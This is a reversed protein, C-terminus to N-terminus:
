AGFGQVKRIKDAKGIQSSSSCLDLSHNAVSHALTGSSPEEVNINEIGIVTAENSGGSRGVTENTVVEQSSAIIVIGQVQGSANIKGISLYHTPEFM